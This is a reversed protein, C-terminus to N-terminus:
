DKFVRITENNVRLLYSGTQIRQTDVEYLSSGIVGNIVIRGNLDVLAFPAGIEAYQIYISNTTPNPFVTLAYQQEEIGLVNENSIFFYDVGAETINAEPELDATRFVVQMSSTITLYDSLRISRPIWSSNGVGDSGVTDVIVSVFGNSVVVELTDNPVAGHMCYFWRTFNLYPDSYTTLNMTPSILVATGAHVDDIYPIVAPLNGTVYALEGCDYEADIGPSSGISTQFPKGREWLGTEASGSSIWGFDFEFDDFYGKELEVSLTATSADILMEFCTTVYGWKGITVSYEEQYYLVFEEIGIGNTVGEHTLLNAKLRVNVNSVPNGTSAETVNVTFNFPPIPILQVDKVAVEENLLDVSHTQPYYGVKSYTVTYSGGDVIGTAYKGISNSLDIQDHGVIQVSVDSLLNGTGDETVVGELYAARHYDPALVFLGETIDAALLLGSSLFPYAGWCGDYSTTQAPYTDYQGVLVMNHPNSIDHVTVGDSYYSTVLYDGLVHVNHPIVGMGPSSTIKDTETINVPDTIDYAALYGGSVEDTTFVFQGNDSPWINHTFTSPTFRTGLLVPNAKDSVDVVSLFGEEIHALYMTDNRVFGDHVYWDDFTGVEVPNMPDTHVDLIIVGGNGRNMGFIYAYGNEDIYLNHASSWTSGTEGYYYSTTLPTIAPLTNLDIILLGNEAETTIYAYNGWTKLDRWISEMGPEWFVEVPASPDELSVVSTGKRAGVLAYEIGTEDEYGWIDNLYTEHLQQYDLRSVQSINLQASLFFSLFFSIVLLINNKRIM